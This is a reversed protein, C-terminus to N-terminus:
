TITSVSACRSNHPPGSCLSIQGVMHSASLQTQANFSIQIDLWTVPVVDSIWQIINVQMKYGIGLSRCRWLEKAYESIVTPPDRFPDTLKCDPGHFVFPSVLRGMHQLSTSVTGIIWMMRNQLLCYNEDNSKTVSMCRGQWVWTLWCILNEVNDSKAVSLLIWWEIQYCVHPTGLIGM